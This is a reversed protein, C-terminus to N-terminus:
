LFILQLGHIRNAVFLFKNKKVEEIDQLKKENTKGPQGKFIMMPALKEGNGAIALIVSVRNKDNGFTSIKVNKTGKLEITTQEPMEFYIPTEDINIILNLKDDTINMNERARIIDRLFINVVDNVKKPLPQGIHGAKRFVLSHRKLFRTCWHKLADYTKNEGIDPNLFILYGIIARVTLSIGLKRNYIIWQLIQPECEFTYPKRGAGKIRFKINKNNEKELITKMKIWDRISARDIGYKNSTAHISTIEAEKIVDLKQKLTYRNKLPIAKKNEKKINEDLKKSNEQSDM